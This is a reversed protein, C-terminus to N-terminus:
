MASSLQMPPKDAQVLQELTHIVGGVGSAAAIQSFEARHSTLLSVGEITIDLIRHDDPQDSVLYNVKLTERTSLLVETRVTFRDDESNDLGVIKMDAVKRSSNQAFNAIYMKILYDGYLATYRERQEPTASRWAVGLVFKAIWDINVMGAIGRKLTEERDSFSKKQDQLVSLTMDTMSAVLARREAFRAEPTRASVSEASAQALSATIAAGIIICYVGLRKLGGM